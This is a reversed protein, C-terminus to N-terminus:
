AFFNKVMFNRLDEEDNWMIHQYEPSPFHRLWTHYCKRWVIPWRTRDKYSIHHIIKPVGNVQFNEIFGPKSILFVLICSILLLLIVLIVTQQVM